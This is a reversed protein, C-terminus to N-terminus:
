AIGLECREQKLLNEAAQILAPMMKEDRDYFAEAHLLIAQKYIDPVYSVDPTPDPSGLGAAFGARFIIRFADGSWLGSVPVIRPWKTNESELVYSTSDVETETGESDVSVFSTIAIVPSKRLLWGANSENFDGSSWGYGNEPSPAPVSIRAPALGIRRDLNLKWTQEVLARGTFWEAWQRSTKILRTILEDETTDSAYTRLHKKAEALTVPEVSPQTVRELLFQM